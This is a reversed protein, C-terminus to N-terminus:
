GGSAASAAANEADIVADIALVVALAMVADTGDAINIEFSDGWSMWRKHISAIYQGGCSISYDHEFFDGNIQWDIGEIYYRPKLLTFEKVIDATYQGGIYVSFRPLLRLLRQQIFAVENKMNDYIHM